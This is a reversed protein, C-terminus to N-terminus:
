WNFVQVTNTQIDLHQINVNESIATKISKIQPSCLSNHVVFPKTNQEINNFQKHTGGMFKGLISLRHRGGLQEIPSIMELFLILSEASVGNGYSKCVQVLFTLCDPLPETIEQGLSLAEIDTAFKLLNNTTTHFHLQSQVVDCLYLLHDPSNLYLYLHVVDRVLPDDFISLGDTRKICTGRLRASIEYMDCEHPTLCLSTAKLEDFSKQHQFKIINKASIRHEVLVSSLLSNIWDSYLLGDKFIPSSSSSIELRSKLNGISSEILLPTPFGNDSLIKLLEENNINECVYSNCAQTHMNELAYNLYPSLCLSPTFIKEKYDRLNSQLFLALSDWSDEEGSSYNLKIAWKLLRRQNL